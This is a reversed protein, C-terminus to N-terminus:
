GPPMPPAAAKEHKDYAKVIRAVLEHRAVDRGDFDVFAVGEVGELVKRATLLGSPQGALLDIQTVDGTM